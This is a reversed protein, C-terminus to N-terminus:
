LKPPAAPVPTAYSYLAGAVPTLAPIIDLSGIFVRGAREARLTIPKGPEGPKLTWGGKYFGPKVIITDGPKAKAIADVVEQDSAWSATTALFAALGLISGVKRM